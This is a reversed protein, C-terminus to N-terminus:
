LHSPFKEQCGCNARPVCKGMSVIINIATLQRTSHARYDLWIRNFLSKHVPRPVKEGNSVNSGHSFHKELELSVFVSKSYFAHYIPYHKYVKVSDNLAQSKM